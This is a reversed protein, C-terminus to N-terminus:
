IILLRELRENSGNVFFRLDSSQRSNDLFPFSITM